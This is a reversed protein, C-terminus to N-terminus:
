KTLASQISCHTLFVEVCSCYGLIPQVICTYNVVNVKAGSWKPTGTFWDVLICVTNGLAPAHVHLHSAVIMLTM